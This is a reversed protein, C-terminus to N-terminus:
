KLLNSRLLNIQENLTKANQTLEQAKALAAEVPAPPTAATITQDARLQLIKASRTLNASANTINDVVSRVNKRLDTPFDIINEAKTDM